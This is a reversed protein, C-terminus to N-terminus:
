WGFKFRVIDGAGSMDAMGVDVTRGVASRGLSDKVITCCNKLSCTDAKGQPLGINLWLFIAAPFLVSLSCGAVFNLRICLVRVFRVVFSTAM